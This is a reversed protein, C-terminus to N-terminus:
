ETATPPPPLLLNRGGEPSTVGDDRGVSARLQAYSRSGDECFMVDISFDGGSVIRRRLQPDIRSRRVVRELAARNRASYFLNEGGDGPDNLGFRHYNARDQRVISSATELRQGRSNYRDNDTITTSYSTERVCALSSTSILGISMAILCIAYNVRIHSRQM